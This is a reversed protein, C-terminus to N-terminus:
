VFLDKNLAVIKAIMELEALKKRWLAQIIRIRSTLRPDCCAAVREAHGVVLQLVSLAYGLRAYIEIQM